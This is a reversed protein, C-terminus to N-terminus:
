YRMPRKGAWWPDFGDHGRRTRCIVHKRHTPPGCLRWRKAAINEYVNQFLDSVTNLSRTDHVLFVHEPTSAMHALEEEDMLLLCSISSTLEMSLSASMKGTVHGAAM